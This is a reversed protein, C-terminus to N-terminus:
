SAAADLIPDLATALDVDKQTIGGADHSWLSLTLATFALHIDPHHDQAEATLAVRRILDVADMFAATKLTRTLRTKERRWQPLTQLAANLVDDGLLPM